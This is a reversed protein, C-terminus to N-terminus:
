LLKDMRLRPHLVVIQLLIDDYVMFMSRVKLAGLLIAASSVKIIKVQIKRLFYPKINRTFGRGLLPNM